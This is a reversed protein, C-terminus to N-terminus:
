WSIIYKKLTAYGTFHRRKGGPVHCTCERFLLTTESRSVTKDKGYCFCLLLSWKGGAGVGCEQKAKEEVQFHLIYKTRIRLPGIFFIPTYRIAADIGFM